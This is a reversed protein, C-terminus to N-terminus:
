GMHSSESVLRSYESWAATPVCMPYGTLILAPPVPTLAEAVIAAAVRNGFSCGLVFWAPADAQALSLRPTMNARSDCVHAPSAPTELRPDPLPLGLGPASTPPTLGIGTCIHAPHAWDRHLHPRPSGLSPASTPPPSGLGPAGREPLHEDGRRARKEHRGLGGFSCRRKVRSGSVCDRECLCASSDWRKRACLSHEHFARERVRTCGCARARARVGMGTGPCARAGVALM